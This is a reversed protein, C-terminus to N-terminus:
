KKDKDFFYDLLLIGGLFIIMSGSFALLSYAIYILIRSDM